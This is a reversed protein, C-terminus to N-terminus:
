EELPSNKGYFRNLIARFRYTERLKAFSPDLRIDQRFEIHHLTDLKAMGELARELYQLAEDDRNMEAFVKSRHLDAYPDNPDIVELSRMVELAEDFRHQHALNVGLNNLATEDEPSLALAVRYLAEEKQYEGQRKYILAKNNYGAPDDPFLEIYRDYTRRAGEYDQGLYQYYSLISLAAADNPDIALRHRAVRLSLNIELNDMAKDREDYWEPFGWGEEEEAPAETDSRRKDPDMADMGDAVGDSPDEEPQAGAMAAAEAEAAAEQESKSKAPVSLDDEVITRVPKAAVDEAGGMKTAPGRSGAPMFVDQAERDSKPRDIRDEIIGQQEGELDNRLLRALYEASIVGGAGDSPPPFCYSMDESMFQAGSKWTTGSLEYILPLILAVAPLALFRVAHRPQDAMVLVFLAVLLGLLPAVMWLIPGGVDALDPLWMAAFDCSRDGLWVAQITGTCSMTVLAFWALSGAFAVKGVRTLWVQEVLYLKLEVPGLQLVLDRGPALEHVAGFADRVTCTARDNWWVQAVYDAGDPVPIAVSHGAPGSGLSPGGIQVPRGTLVFREEVVTGYFTARAFLVYSNRAVSRGTM